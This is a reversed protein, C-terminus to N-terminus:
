AYIDEKNKKIANLLMWIVVVILIVFPIIGWYAMYKNEEANIEALLTTNTITLNKYGDLAPKVYNSMAQNLIIFAIAMILLTVIGLIWSFAVGEGKKYLM